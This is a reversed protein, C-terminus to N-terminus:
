RSRRSDLMLTFRQWMRRLLFPDYAWEKVIWTRKTPHFYSFTRLRQSRSFDHRSTSGRQALVHKDREVEARYDGKRASSLQDPRVRFMALPVSLQLLPYHEAIRTWLAFDFAVDNDESLTKGLRDFVEASWFTGEQQVMPYVASRHRGLRLHRQSFGSPLRHHSAFGGLGLPISEASIQASLGTVWHYNPFAQLVDAVTSFAWPMLVDDAGLWTYMDGNVADFGRNLAQAVGTDSAVSFSFEVRQNSGTLSSWKELVDLTNDTSGGDQVHVRCRFLGHQGFVSALASDLFSGQNLSPIVVAFQM